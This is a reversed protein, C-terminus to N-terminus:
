PYSVGALITIDLLPFQRVSSQKCPNPIYTTRSGVYCAGTTSKYNMLLAKVNKDEGAEKIFIEAIINDIDTDQGDADLSIILVFYDGCVGAIFPNPNNINDSDDNFSLSDYIYTDRADGYICTDWTLPKVKEKIRYRNISNFLVSDARTQAVSALSM